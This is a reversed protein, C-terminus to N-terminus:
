KDRWVEIGDISRSHLKPGDEDTLDIPPFLKNIANLAFQNGQKASLALLNVGKKPDRTVGLGDHYILGLLYQAEADGQNAPELFYERAKEYDQIADDDRMYCKGLEVNTRVIAKKAPEFGKEAALELWFLGLEISVRDDLGVQDSASNDENQISLAFNYQGIVNGQHAANGFWLKAEEKDQTVGWGNEYMMGLCNQSEADAQEAALRYWKMAEKYDQLVGNGKEYMSGLNFQANVHGQEAASRYWKVSEEHDQAVGKGESYKVGLNYQAKADGQEAAVFMWNLEEQDYM